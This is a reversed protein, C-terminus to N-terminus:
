TYRYADQADDRQRPIAKVNCVQKLTFKNLLIIDLL